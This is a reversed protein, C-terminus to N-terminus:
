PPGFTINYAFLCFNLCTFMIKIKNFVRFLEWSQKYMTAYTRFIKSVKQSEKTPFNELLELIYYFTQM